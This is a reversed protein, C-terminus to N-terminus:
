FPGLDLVNLGSIIHLTGTDPHESLEALDKELM